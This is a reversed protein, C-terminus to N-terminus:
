VINEFKVCLPFDIGHGSAGFQHEPNMEIITVLAINALCVYFLVYRVCAVNKFRKSIFELFYLANEIPM